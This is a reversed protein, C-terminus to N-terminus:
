LELLIPNNVTRLVAIPKWANPYAALALGRRAIRSHILCIVAKPSGEVEIGLYVTAVGNIVIAHVHDTCYM